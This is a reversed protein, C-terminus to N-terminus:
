AACTKVFLFPKLMHTTLSKDKRLSLCQSFDGSMPIAAAASIASFDQDIRYEELYASLDSEVESFVIPIATATCMAGVDEPEAEVLTVGAKHLKELAEEIVTASEGLVYPGPRVNSM